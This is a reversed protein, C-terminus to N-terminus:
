GRNGSPGDGDGAEAAGMEKDEGQGQHGAQAAGNEKIAASRRGRRQRGYGRRHADHLM